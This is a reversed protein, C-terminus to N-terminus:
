AMPPRFPLPLLPSPYVGSRAFSPVAPVPRPTGTQARSDTAPAACACACVGDQCCAGAPTGDDQPLVEAATDAGQEHCPSSAAEQAVSVVAAASGAHAPMLGGPGLALILCLRLLRQLVTKM